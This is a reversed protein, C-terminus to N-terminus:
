SRGEAQVEARRAEALIQDHLAAIDAASLGMRSLDDASLTGATRVIERIKAALAPRLRAVQVAAIAPTAAAARAIDSIERCEEAAIARWARDITHDTQTIPM